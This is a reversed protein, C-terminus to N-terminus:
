GTYPRTRVLIITNSLTLSRRPLIQTVNANVRYECLENLVQPAVWLEVIGDLKAIWWKRFLRIRSSNNSILTSLSTIRRNSSMLLWHRFPPPCFATMQRQSYVLNSESRHDRCIQYWSSCFTCSYTRPLNRCRCKSPGNRLTWERCHRISATRSRTEFDARIWWVKKIPSVSDGVLRM